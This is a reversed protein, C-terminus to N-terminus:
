TENDREKFYKMHEKFRFELRNIIKQAQDKSLYGVKVFKLVKKCRRKYIFLRIDYLACYKFTELLDRLTLKM